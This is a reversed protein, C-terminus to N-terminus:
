RLLPPPDRFTTGEVISNLPVKLLRLASPIYWLYVLDAHFLDPEFLQEIFYINKSISSNPLVCSGNSISKKFGILCTKEYIGGFRFHILPQNKVRHSNITNRLPNVTQIM